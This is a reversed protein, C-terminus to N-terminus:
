LNAVTTAELDFLYGGTTRVNRIASSTGAASLARRIRAICATVAGEDLATNGWVGELLERRTFTVGPHEMFHRLVKLQMATLQVPVGNARVTYRDPDLEIGHLRILKESRIPRLRRNVSKLKLAFERSNYAEVWCDDAGAELMALKDAGDDNTLAFVLAAYLDDVTRISQCLRIASSVDNAADLIIINPRTQVAMVLAKPGIDCRHVLWGVSRLVPEASSAIESSALLLATVPM